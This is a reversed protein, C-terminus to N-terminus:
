QRTPVFGALAAKFITKGKENDNPTLFHPLVKHLLITAQYNSPHQKKVSVKLMFNNERFYFDATQLSKRFTM